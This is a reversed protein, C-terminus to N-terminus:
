DRKPSLLHDRKVEDALERLSQFVKRYGDVFYTETFQINHLRCIDRTRGAIKHLNHRPMHPFMHHEVQFNLGGMFWNVLFQTVVSSGIVDRSTEVQLRIHSVDHGAPYVAMGSHGLVFPAAKGWGGFIEISAALILPHYWREAVTFLLWGYVVYHLALFFKEWRQMSRLRSLELLSQIRWSIQAFAMVVVVLKDQHAIWWKSFRGLVAVKPLDLKDWAIIPLTDIDPDHGHVNSSAHHTNHKDKWWQVSFGQFLGGTICGLIANFKRNHSVQHHLIDHSYWGSQSMAVGILLGSFMQMYGNGPYQISLAFAVSFIGVIQLFQFLYYLPSAKFYGEKEAWDRLERFAQTEAPVVLSEKPRSKWKGMRQITSSPHFSHFVDSADRDHFQYIVSGGPHTKAWQEPVDYEKGEIVLRLQQSKPAEAKATWKLVSVDPRKNSPAAVSGSDASSFPPM